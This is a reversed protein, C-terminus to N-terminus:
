LTEPMRAQMTGNAFQVTTGCQSRRVDDDILQFFPVTGKENNKTNALHTWCANYSDDGARGILILTARGIKFICGTHLQTLNLETKSRWGTLGAGVGWM